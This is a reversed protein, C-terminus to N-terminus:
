LLRIRSYNFIFLFNYINGSSKGIELCKESTTLGPPMVAFKRKGFDFCYHMVPLVWAMTM